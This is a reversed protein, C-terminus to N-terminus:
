DVAKQLQRALRGRCARLFEVDEDEIEKPLKRSGNKGPPELVYVVVRAGESFKVVDPLKILGNEITGHVCIM